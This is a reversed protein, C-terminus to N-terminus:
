QGALELLIQQDLDRRNAAAAAVLKDYLVKDDGKFTLTVKNLDLKKKTGNEAMMEGKM